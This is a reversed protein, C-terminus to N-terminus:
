TVFNYHLKTVTETNCNFKQQDHSNMENYLNQLNNTKFDFNNQTFYKFGSIMSNFKRQIQVLRLYFTYNYPM